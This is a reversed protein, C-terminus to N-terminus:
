NRRIEPSFIPQKESGTFDESMPKWFREFYEEGKKGMFKDWNLLLREKDMYLADRSYNSYEFHDTLAVAGFPCAEVCFACFLCRLVEIEYRDVIKTHEPGESTYVKICQSPCIAACLGCGVCRATGDTNRVLAHLGRFGHAPQRKEEPYQRTIARTLMMRFTLSMGKLIEILFVKKALDKVTM